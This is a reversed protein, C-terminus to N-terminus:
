LIWKHETWHQANNNENPVLAAQMGYWHLIQQKYNGADTTEFMRWWSLLPILLRIVALIKNIIDTTSLTM